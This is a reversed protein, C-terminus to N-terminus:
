QKPFFLNNRACSGFLNRKKLVKPVRRSSAGFQRHWFLLVDSVQLDPRLFLRVPSVPNNKDFSVSAFLLSGAGLSKPITRFM